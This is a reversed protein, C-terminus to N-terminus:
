ERGGARPFLSSLLLSGDTVVRAGDPLGSLIPVKGDREPGVTVRTRRFRGPGAAVFCVRGAGETLIARAPVVTASRPSKGSVEVTVYMEAKLLGERNDVAGRARVTRTAPDLADGVLDLRGAFTRGPWAAARVALRDGPSLLALDRETVDLWVWLIRPNTVVFLPVAADPRAEQGPNANREVVVGPLPSALSFLQDPGRDGDAIAGADGGWRALRAASRAAEARSRALDAEAADLDKRPAAGREVLRAARDRTRRAAALDASARAADAQAQGYDPSSIEALVDGAAVRTGVPGRLSVIRGAVPPLVRVTADEDWALRGTVAVPQEAEHTAPELALSGLQPAGDSFAIVDGELRPPPVDTRSPANRGCGALAAALLAASCTKKM